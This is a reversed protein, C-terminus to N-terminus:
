GPRGFRNRDTSRGRRALGARELALLEALVRRSDDKGGLDSAIRSYDRLQGPPYSRLCSLIRTGLDPLQM